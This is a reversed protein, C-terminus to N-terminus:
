LSHPRKVKYIDDSPSPRAARFYITIRTTPDRAVAELFEPFSLENLVRMSGFTTEPFAPSSQITAKFEGRPQDTRANALIKVRIWEGRDSCGKAFRDEFVYFSKLHAPYSMMRSRVSYPRYVNVDSNQVSKIRNYIIADCLFRYKIMPPPAPVEPVPVPPPVPPSVRDYFLNSPLSENTDSSM